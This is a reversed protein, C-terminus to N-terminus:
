SYNLRDLELYSKASKIDATLVNMTTTNKDDTTLDSVITQAKRLGDVCILTRVVHKSEHPM